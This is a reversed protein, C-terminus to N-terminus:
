PSTDPEFETYLFYNSTDRLMNQSRFSSRQIGFADRIRGKPHINIVKFSFVNVVCFQM